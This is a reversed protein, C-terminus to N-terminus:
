FSGNEKTRSIEKTSLENGNHREELTNVVALVFGLRKQAKVLDASACRVENTAKAVEALISLLLEGDTKNDLIQM